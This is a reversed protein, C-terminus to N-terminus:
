AANFDLVSSRSQGESELATYYYSDVGSSGSPAVNTREGRYVLNHRGHQRTGAADPVTFFTMSILLYRSPVM